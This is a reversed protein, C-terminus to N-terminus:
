KSEPLSQLGSPRFSTLVGKLLCMNMAPGFIQMKSYELHDM